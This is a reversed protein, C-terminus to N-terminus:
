RNNNNTDLSGPNYQNNNVSGFTSSHENQNTGYNDVDVILPRNVNSGSNVVPRNSSGSDYENNNQYIPRANNNTSQTPRNNSVTNQNGYENSQQNPRTNTSASSSAQSSVITYENGTSQSPRANSISSSPRTNSPKANSVSNQNPRNNNQTPRSSSTQPKSQQHTSGFSPNYENQDIVYSDTDVNLPRHQQSQTQQSPKTNTTSPRSNSSPRTTPKKNNGQLHSGNCIVKDNLKIQLINPVPHNSEYEIHFHLQELSGVKLIYSPSEILFDKNDSSKSM